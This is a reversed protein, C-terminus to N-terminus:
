SFTNEHSAHKAFNLVKFCTESPDAHTKDSKLRSKLEQFILEAKEDELLCKLLSLITPSDGAFSERFEYAFREHNKDIIFLGGLQLLDGHFTMTETYVPSSTLVTAARMRSLDRLGYLDYLGYRKLRMSSFLTKQADVFIPEPFFKLSDFEEFDSTDTAIAFIKVYKANPYIVSRYLYSIASALGRCVPCGFRRLFVVILMYDKYKDILEEMRFNKMSKDRADYITGAKFSEFLTRSDIRLSGVSASTERITKDLIASTSQNSTPAKSQDNSNSTINGDRVQMEVSEIKNAAMSNESWVGGHVAKRHARLRRPLPM